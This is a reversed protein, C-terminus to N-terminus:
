ENWTDVWINTEDECWRKGDQKAMLMELDENSIPHDDQQKFCAPHPSRPTGQIRYDEINCIFHWLWHTLHLIKGCNMIRNVIDVAGAAEGSGTVRLWSKIVFKLGVSGEFNNKNPTVFICESFLFFVTLVVDVCMAREFGGIVSSWSGGLTGQTHFALLAM